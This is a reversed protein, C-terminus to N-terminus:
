TIGSIPKLLNINIKKFNDIAVLDLTNWQTSGPVRARIAFIRRGEADAVGRVNKVTTLLDSSFSKNMRLEVNKPHNAAYSASMDNAIIVYAGTIVGISIVGVAISFVVLATRLWNDTLDSIVKRWRPRM